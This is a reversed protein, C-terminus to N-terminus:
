REVRIEKKVDLIALMRSFIDGSARSPSSIRWVAGEM